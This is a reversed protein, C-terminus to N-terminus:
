KRRSVLILNINGIGLPKEKCTIFNDINAQLIDGDKVILDIIIRIQIESNIEIPETIIGNLYVKPKINEGKYTIELKEPNIIVPADLKYKQFISIQRDAMVSCWIDVKGCEFNIEKKFGNNDIVINYIYPDCSSLLLSFLLLSFINTKM